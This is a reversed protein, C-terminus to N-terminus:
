KPISLVLYGIWWDYHSNGINHGYLLVLFPVVGVGHFVPLCLIVQLVGQLYGQLHQSPAPSDHQSRCCADAQYCKGTFSWWPSLGTRRYDHGSGLSDLVSFNCFLTLLFSSHLWSDTRADLISKGGPVYVGTEWDLNYRRFNFFFYRSGDDDVEVRCYHFSGQVKGRTTDSFLFAMFGDVVRFTSELLCKLITIFKSDHQLNESQQEPVFVAVHDARELICRRFFLSRISDPWKLAFTWFFGVMWTIEFAMLVQQEDQFIPKWRTIAEQQVYYLITTTALLIQFGLLTLATLAYVIGGVVTNKYGTQTKPIDDDELPVTSDTIPLLKQNFYCWALILATVVSIWCYLFVFTPENWSYLAIASEEVTCTAEFDYYSAYKTQCADLNDVVKNCAVSACESACPTELGADCVAACSGDACPTDNGGCLMESPCESLNSVCVRACTTLAPCEFTPDVFDGFDANVVAVLAAMALIFRKFM